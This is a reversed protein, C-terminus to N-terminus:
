KKNITLIYRGTYENRSNIEPYADMIVDNFFAYDYSGKSSLKVRVINGYIKVVESFDMGNDEAIKQAKSMDIKIVMISRASDAIMAIEKSYIQELVIASSSQKVLFLILISLFILNLIIFIVNEVLIEGKKM